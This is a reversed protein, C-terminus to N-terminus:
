RPPPVPAHPMRPIQIPPVVIAPIEIPGPASLPPVVIPAPSPAGPEADVAPPMAPEIAAAPPALPISAAAIRGDRPGFTATRIPEARPARRAPPAPAPVSVAPGPRADDTRPAAPAPQHEAVQTSGQPLEPATDRLVVVALVVVALAGAALSPWLLARHAPAELRSLVRARFGAPPDRRVIDRVARDIADDIPTRNDNM